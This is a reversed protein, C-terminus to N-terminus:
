RPGGIGNTCDVAAQKMLAEQMQPDQMQQNVNQQTQMPLQADGTIEYMLNYANLTRKLEATQETIDFNDNLNPIMKPLDTKYFKNMFSNMRM